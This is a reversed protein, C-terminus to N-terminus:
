ESSLNQGSDNGSNILIKQCAERHFRDIEKELIMSPRYANYLNELAAKASKLAKILDANAAELQKASFKLKKLMLEIEEEKM